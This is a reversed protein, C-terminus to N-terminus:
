RRMEWLERHRAYADDWRARDRPEYATIPFSSTVIARLGAPDAAQDDALAQVLVNGAATAEVPGALVRCGTADATMQNLLANRSGGGVVHITDVRGEQGALLELEDICRRYEMALAELCCRMFEGPTAPAPDGVRRAFTDIKGLIGGPQALEPLGADLRTRFPESSSATAALHAYDCQTGLRDLDRRLEQALWLGVLNKHFHCTGNLGRENTFGGLRAGETLVPGTLEVGLLSWTGSSLYAWSGTGPRAPIAAIASATDHSPPLVVCADPPLGAEAAVEPLLSGLVTGSAVPPRFLRGPMGLLSVLESSWDGSSADLMQSTSAISVENCVSGSLRHHFYDPVMLLRDAQTVLPNGAVVATALQSLTNIAMAAVGTLGYLREPGIRDHLFGLGSDDWADRYSRAPALPVGTVDLLVFDVGWADVGVSVVSAGSAGCWEAAARLGNVIEIWLRDMDWHLGEKLRVPEHLFRHVEHLELKRASRTITAEGALMGVIVRGSEAGLDVAIYASKGM